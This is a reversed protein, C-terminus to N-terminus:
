RLSYSDAHPLHHQYSGLLMSQSKWEGSISLCEDNSGARRFSMNCARAVASNATASSKKGQGNQLDGCSLRRDQHGIWSNPEASVQHKRLTSLRYSPSIKLFSILLLELHKSNSHTSAPALSFLLTVLGPQFRPIEGRLHQPHM